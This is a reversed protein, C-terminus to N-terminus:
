FSAKMASLNLYGFKQTLSSLWLINIQAILSQLRKLSDKTKNLWNVVGMEQVMETAGEKAM